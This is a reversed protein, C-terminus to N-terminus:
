DLVAEDHFEPVSIPWGKENKIHEAFSLAASEEGHTIFLRRPARKLSSLWMTLENKDAHGSFGNISQVRMKLEYYKGFLRVKKVGDLIIRGLTGVAQYGVFLLTSEPRSIHHAIHHKVRGGTCM